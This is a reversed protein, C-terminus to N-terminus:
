WVCPPRRTGTTASDFGCGFKTGELNSCDEHYALEPQPPIIECWVCVSLDSECPTINYMHTDEVTHHRLVTRTALQASEAEDAEADPASATVVPIIESLITTSRSTRTKSRRQNPDLPTPACTTEVLEINKYTTSSGRDFTPYQASM